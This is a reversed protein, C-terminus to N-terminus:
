CCVDLCRNPIPPSIKVFLYDVVKIGRGKEFVYVRNLDLEESASRLRSPAVGFSVNKLVEVFIGGLGFVVFPEFQDDHTVGLIIKIRIKNHASFDSQSPLWTRKLAVRDKALVIRRAGM